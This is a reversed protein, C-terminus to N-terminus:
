FSHRGLKRDCCVAISIIILLIYIDSLGGATWPAYEVYQSVSVRQEAIILATGYQEPCHIISFLSSKDIM